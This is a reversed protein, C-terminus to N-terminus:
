RQGPPIILSSEGDCIHVVGPKKGSDFSGLVNEMGLAKAGNLCAWSFLEEYSIYSNYKKITQIESWISLDWNSSLSDTGICMKAMNGRFVEYNPLMNEIYLNANPCTVWYVEDNWQHAMTVDAKRTLTNHVLLTRNSTLLNQLVYHLSSKSTSQFHDFSLGMNQFFGEFRMTQGNFMDVEAQTEQNHISISLKADRPNLENISNFVHESVSYPAHPSLSAPLASQSSFENWTQLFPNIFSQTRDKQWLDFVEVFTYYRIKSSIKTPITHAANSIDGVAVIGTDFMKQDYAAIADMITEIPFERLRVVKELFSLLGTGSEILGKLHSLELHCHANVFGPCLTGNFYEVAAMDQVGKDVLGLISHDDDVLLLHDDYRRGDGFQIHDASLKRM